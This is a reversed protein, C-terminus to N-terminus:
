IYPTMFYTAKRMQSRESGVSYELNIWMMASILVESRKIVLYYEIMYIYWMENMCKDMSPYKPQIKEKAKILLAPIFM